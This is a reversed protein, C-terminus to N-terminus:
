AAKEAAESVLSYRDHLEIEYLIAVPLVIGTLADTCLDLGEFAQVGEEGRAAFGAVLLTLDEVLPDDEAATVPEGREVVHAHDGHVQGACLSHRWTRQRIDEGSFLEDGSRVVGGARRPEHLDYVVCDRGGICAARNAVLSPGDFVHAIALTGILFEDLRQVREDTLSERIYTMRELKAGVCPIVDRALARNLIVPQDSRGCGVLEAPRPAVDSVAVDDLFSVFREDVLEEAFVGRAAFFSDSEGDLVLESLDELGGSIILSRESKGSYRVQSSRLALVVVSRPESHVRREALDDDAPALVDDLDAPRLCSVQRRDKGVHAGRLSRVVDVHM